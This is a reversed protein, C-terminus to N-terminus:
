FKEFISRKDKFSLSSLKDSWEKSTKNSDRKGPNSQQQNKNNTESNKTNPSQSNALKSRMESLSSSSPSKIADTGNEWESCVECKERNEKIEKKHIKEFEKLKSKLEKNEKKLKENEEKLNKNEEEYPVEQYNITGNFMENFIENIKNIDKEAKEILAKLTGKKDEIKNTSGNKIGEIINIYVLDINKPREDGSMELLNIYKIFNCFDESQEKCLQYLELDDSQNGKSNWFKELAMFLNYYDKNFNTFFCSNIFNIFNEVYGEIVVNKFKKFQQRYFDKYKLDKIEKIKGIKECIDKLYVISGDKILLDIIYKRKDEDSSLINMYILFPLIFKVKDVDEKCDNLRSLIDGFNIKPEKIKLLITKMKEVFNETFKRDCDNVNLFYNFIGSTLNQIDSFYKKIKEINKINSLDNVFDLNAINFELFCLFEEKELKCVNSLCDKLIQTMLNLCRKKFNEEINNFYSENFKTMVRLGIFNKFDTKFGDFRTDFCDIIELLTLLIIPNITQKQKSLEEKAKKYKEELSGKEIRSEKYLKESEIYNKIETFKYISCYKDFLANLLKPKNENISSKNEEKITPMVSQTRSHMKMIRDVSIATLILAFNLYDFENFKSIDISTKEDKIERRDKIAISKKTKAAIYEGKIFKIFNELNKPNSNEEVMKKLAELDFKPKLVDGKEKSILRTREETMIFYRNIILYLAVM